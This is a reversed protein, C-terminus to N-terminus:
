PSTASNAQDKTEIDAEGRERKTWEYRQLQYLRRWTWHDHVRHQESSQLAWGPPMNVLQENLVAEPEAQVWVILRKVDEDRATNNDRLIRQVQANMDRRADEIPFERLYQMSRALEPTVAEGSLISLYYQMPGSMVAGTGPAGNMRGTRHVFATGPEDRASLVDAALRATPPESSGFTRASFNALNALVILCLVGRRLVVTPLRAILIAMVVWFAPAIFGPYRPMWVSADQPPVVISLVTLMGWMGLLLVVWQGARKVCARVARWGGASMAGESRGPTTLMLVGLGVVMLVGGASVNERRRAEIVGSWSRAYGAWGERMGDVLRTRWESLGVPGNEGMLSQAWVYGAGRFDRSDVDKVDHLVVRAVMEHPLSADRVSAYYFTGLPLVIWCALLWATRMSLWESVRGGSGGWAETLRTSSTARSVDGVRPADGARSIDGARPADKTEHDGALWRGWARLNLAGLALLLLMVLAATRLLRRNFESLDAIQDPKVWEWSFLYATATYLLYDVGDRGRNYPGVWGIGAEGLSVDGETAEDTVRDDFRNFGDYYSNPVSLLILVGAMLPLLAPLRWGRLSKRLPVGVGAQRGTLKSRSWRVFMWVPTIFGVFVALPLKVLPGWFGRWLLLAALVEIGVVFKGLANFSMMTVGSAIWAPYAVMAWPSKETVNAAEDKARGGMTRTRMWWVFCAMHITVCSWFQMYMKADRSYVLMYASTATLLAAVLAVRRSVLQVVLAYMAPIMLTGFLAPVFRLRYPDLLAPEGLRSTPIMGVRDPVIREREVYVRREYDAQGDGDRDVPELSFPGQGDIPFGQAIWWSLQYHMPMFGAYRLHTLMQQYSGCVRSWTAAEDGWVSPRDLASFRLLGGLATLLLLVWLSYRELYRMSM